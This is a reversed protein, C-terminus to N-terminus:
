EIKRLKESTIIPNNKILQSRGIEKYDIRCKHNEPFRHKSCFVYGCSCKLGTLGVKKNCDWCRETNTQVPYKETLEDETRLNIDLEAFCKSCYNRTELGGFFGCNNICKSM